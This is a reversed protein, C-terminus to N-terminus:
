SAIVTRSEESEAQVWATIAASTPCGLQRVVVEAFGGQDVEVVQLVVGAIAKVNGGQGASPDDRHGAEATHAVV